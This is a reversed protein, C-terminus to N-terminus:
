STLHGSTFHVLYNILCFKKVDLIDAIEDYTLDLRYVLDELDKNKERKMEPLIESKFHDFGALICGSNGKETRTGRKEVKVHLEIDYESRLELIENLKNDFEEGDESNWHGPTSISFSNNEDIMNFVSNRAEFGTVTLLRKGEKSLNIPPNFSFTQTQRNMKLGLTEQLKTKTEEMLTDTHKNLNSLLEIIM